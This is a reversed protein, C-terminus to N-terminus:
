RKDGVLNPISVSLTSPKDYKYRDDLDKRHNMMWSLFMIDCGIHYAHSLGSEVDVDEGRMIAFLHRLTAAILRSYKIGGRWNHADYKKAGFTLVDGVGILFEPDLLDVMPKSQDFKTGGEPVRPIAVWEGPKVRDELQGYVM